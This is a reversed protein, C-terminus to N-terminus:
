KVTIHVPQSELRNGETDYGVATIIHEGPVLPWMARYPPAVFSALPEEGVYITVRDVNVEDGARAAIEIRQDEQPLSPDLRYVSGEHPSTIILPNRTEPKWDGV